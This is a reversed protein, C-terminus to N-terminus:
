AHDSEPHNVAIVTPIGFLRSWLTTEDILRQVLAKNQSWGLNAAWIVESKASAYTSAALGTNAIEVCLLANIGANAVPKGPRAIAGTGLPAPVPSRQRYVVQGDTADVLVNVYHSEDLWQRAGGIIRRTALGLIRHDQESWVGFASEPLVVTTAAQREAIDLEEFRWAQAFIAQKTADPMGRQTDIGVVTRTTPEHAVVAQANTSLVVMSLAIAPARLSYWKRPLWEVLCFVLLTLLAIGFWGTGPFLIGALPWVSILAFGSVPTISLLTLVLVSALGAYRGAGLSVGLAIVNLGVPVVWALAALAPNATYDFAAIAAPSLAVAFFACLEIFRTKVQRAISWIALLLGLQMVPEGYAFLYGLLLMASIRMLFDM